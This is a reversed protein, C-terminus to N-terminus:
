GWQLILYHLTQYAIVNLKKKGNADPRNEGLAQGLAGTRTLALSPPQISFEIEHSEM